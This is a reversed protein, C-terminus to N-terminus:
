ARASRRWGKSQELLEVFGKISTLPSRLEHSATAVFESKLRELRSRETVDRVTWVVSTAGGSPAQEPGPEEAGGHVRAATVALTRRDREVVIERELALELPPLGPKAEAVRAGVSLEPVLEAARPNAAVVRGEADAVLLGDGLSAITSRLRQRESRIRGLAGALDDAMANFAGGLARLEDPGSPRVRTDLRGTALRRSADVLEDLPRRVRALLAAVFALAAALALAGAVVVAILARRTDDRASARARVRRADQRASLEAVPVRAALAQGRTARRRRVAVQAAATADILRLSPPDGSAFRRAQAVADDFARRARRRQPAGTRGAALRRTAEEVVGAALLRGAAADLAYANAVRDEYRQRATYLGAVGLGALVSLVVALGLLALRLSRALSLRRM